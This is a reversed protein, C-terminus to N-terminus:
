LTSFSMFYVAILLTFIYPLHSIQKLDVILQGQHFSPNLPKSFPSLCLYSLNELGPGTFWIHFIFKYKYSLFDAPPPRTYPKHLSCSNAQSSGHQSQLRPLVDLLIEQGLPLLARLEKM